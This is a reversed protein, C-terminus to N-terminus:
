ASSELRLVAAVLGEVDHEGAEIVPEVGHERLTQSTIPGISVAQLRAIEDASLGSLVNTVTSSATFTVWDCSMVAAADVPEAVSRYLKVETVEAGAARLGDALVTRAGEATAVLIREGAVDGLAEVLGEQTAKAPIVDPELGRARAADATARGVVAVQVGSFRRMDGALVREVGNASTLCVIDYGHADSLDHEITEIRIAPAEVVAAGLETLQSALSSAQARARTVAIRRGFLPRREFWEIEDRLAAVRGVVSIAPAPLQASAVVAAIGELPGTATRQTPLTGQSIVAVPTHPDMGHAILQEAIRPLSRLGMLFVLTGPQTALGAWDVSTEPKAPDEHGTVVTVQTALGRHTVPVGAYAPVAHASSVGPVVEFQIGAARLELAEEGGRGFIFPDGGKLRVVCECRGGLEVLLANTQEQTLAQFGARKGAFHLEAGPAAMAVVRPDVLADYVLADCRRLLESGRLTLLGPDGPGAGVLYVTM